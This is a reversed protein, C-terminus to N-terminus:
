DETLPGSESKGDDDEPDDAVALLASVLMGLFASLPVIWLLHLPNM